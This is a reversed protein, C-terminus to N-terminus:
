GSARDLRDRIGLWEISDPVHEVAIWDWSEADLEHLTTYLAAAYGQATDPMRVPRAVEASGSKWWLYAGRGEPLADGSRVMVVRTRPSYHREHMGPSPHGGDGPDTARVINDFAIMGPRLLVPVRGTVSVVTSEIGVQSPGGDLVLPVEEETFSARVHEATTASLRTFKNASPAALPLGAERILALALPHDPMRIAVTDLNATVEDPVGQHKPVVLTLPGPWFKEALYQAESPWQRVLQRAMDISKVHVILPSTRPRGKIQFIRRVAAPNLANAGLGYVTETPFAVIQGERILQAARHVDTGFM